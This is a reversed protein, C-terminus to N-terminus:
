HFKTCNYARYSSTDHKLVMVRAELWRSLSTMALRCKEKIKKGTVTVVIKERIMRDKKTGLDCSGARTRLETLFIDFPEQYPITWFRPTEVM